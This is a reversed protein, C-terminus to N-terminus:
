IASVFIRSVGHFMVIYIGTPSTPPERGEGRSIPGRENSFPSKEKKGKINWKMFRIYLLNIGLVWASFIVRNANPKNIAQTRGKPTALGVGAGV